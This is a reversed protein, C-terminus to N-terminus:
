VANKNITNKVYNHFFAIFLGSIASTFFAILLILIKNPYAPIDSIVANDLVRFLEPDKAEQLRAKEFEQSLFLYITNQVKVERELRALEIGKNPLSNLITNYKKRAKELEQQRKQMGAKNIEMESLSNSGETTISFKKTTLSIKEELENLLLKSVLAEAEVKAMYQIYSKVEEGLAVTNHRRQFILLNNEATYLKQKSQIIQNEIFSRNKTTDYYNIKKLYKKLEIPFQNAIKAAMFSSEFTVRIKVTNDKSSPAIIKIHKQFDKILRFRSKKGREWFKMRGLEENRELKLSTVVRESMTRSELVSMIDALYPSRSDINLLSLPSSNDSSSLNLNNMINGLSKDSKNSILIRLESMYQPQIWFSAIFSLTTIILIFGLIFFFYKKITSYYFYLNPEDM